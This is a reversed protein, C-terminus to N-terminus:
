GVRSLDAAAWRARRLHRLRPLSQNLRSEAQLRHESCRPDSSASEFPAFVAVLLAVDLVVGPGIHLLVLIFPFPTLRGENILFSFFARRGEFNTM